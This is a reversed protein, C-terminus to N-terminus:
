ENKFSLAVIKRNIVMRNGGRGGRGDVGVVMGLRALMRIRREPEVEVEVLEADLRLEMADVEDGDEGTGSLGGSQSRGAICWGDLSLTVSSSYTKSGM